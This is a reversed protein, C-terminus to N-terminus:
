EYRLAEVPDLRAARWAPYISALLTLILAIAIVILVQSAEVISPLHALFWLIGDMGWGQFRGYLWRGATQIQGAVLLGFVCGILAGAIGVLVGSFMFVRLISGRTSGMTRLIAIERAKDKVMMVQGAIISFVAVIIILVLIVTTAIREVQLAAVLSSNLDKWTKVTESPGLLAQVQPRLDDVRSPDDLVVDLATAHGETEYLTQAEPLTLFVLLNDYEDRRTEFVAAVVFTRGRPVLTGTEPDRRPVILRVKGGIPVGLNRALGAGIVVSPSQFQSLMGETIEDAIIRRALLDEPKIGVIRAGASRKGAAALGDGRVVSAAQLVGPLSAIDQRLRDLDATAASSQVLMHPSVGLIRSILDVQLGNMISTVIVLTAVGLAIALLSLWSVASFGRSRRRSRMYRFALLREPATLM